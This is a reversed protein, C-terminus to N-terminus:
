SITLFDGYLYNKQVYKAHHRYLFTRSASSAYTVPVRAELLTWLCFQNMEFDCLGSYVSISDTMISLLDISFIIYFIIDFIFNQVYYHRCNVQIKATRRIKMKEGEHKRLFNVCTIFCINFYRARHVFM